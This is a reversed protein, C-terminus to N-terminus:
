IRFGLMIRTSIAISYAFLNL